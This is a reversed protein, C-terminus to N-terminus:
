ETRKWLCVTEKRKKDNKDNYYYPIPEGNAFKESIEVHGEQVLEWQGGYQNPNNKPSFWHMTGVPNIANFLETDFM